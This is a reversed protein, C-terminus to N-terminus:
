SFVSATLCHKAGGYKSTPFPVFVVNFSHEELIKQIKVRDQITTKPFLPVLLLQEIQIWNLTSELM